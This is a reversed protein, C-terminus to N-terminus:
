RVESEVKEGYRSHLAYQYDFHKELNFVYRDNHNTCWMKHCQSFRFYVKHRSTYNYELHSVGGRHAEVGSLGNELTEHMYANLEIHM